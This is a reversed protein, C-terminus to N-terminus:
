LGPAGPDERRPGYWLELGERSRAGAVGKLGVRALTGLIERASHARLKRGSTVVRERIVVFRGHRKLARAFIIEEGAFLREDWGGAAEFAARTCFVFCGGTLRLLRFVVVLVGLLVSAYWPVPGDFRILAGGGVAGRELARLAGGVAATNALTDADVFVLVDGRAERAGANRAAAIQRRETRVVRAGHEAALRGTSDTSGDDAVVIEYGGWARAAEHIARVTAAILLEENHAPVIFSIM